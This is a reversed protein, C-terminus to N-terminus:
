VASPVVALATGPVFTELTGPERLVYLTLKADAVLDLTRAGTALEALVRGGSPQVLRTVPGPVILTKRRVSPAIPHNLEDGASGLVWDTSGDPLLRTAAGRADSAIVGGEWPLLSVSRADCPIPKEWLVQGRPGLCIVVTRGERAGALWSRGRASVPASPQSLVFERTWAIAGAPTTEGS